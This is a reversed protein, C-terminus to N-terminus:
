HYAHKLLDRSGPGHLWFRHATYELFTWSIWGFFLLGGHFLITSFSSLLSLLWLMATAGIAYISICKAQQLLHDKSRITQSYHKMFCNKFILSQLTSGHFNEIVLNSPAHPSHSNLEKRANTIKQLM